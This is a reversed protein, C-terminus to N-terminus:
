KKRSDTAEELHYLDTRRLKWYPQRSRITEVQHLDLECILLGPKEELQAIIQGDPNVILSHGYSQYTAYSAAAPNSAALFLENEMARTQMLPQWHKAGVRANFGCPCALLLCDSGLLRALECFRTDYCILIGIKGWPSDFSGLHDGPTFVDSERYHSHTTHVELLHLKDVHTVIQGQDNFVFCRNYIHGNEATPLTGGIIWLKYRAALHAMHDALQTSEDVHALIRENIFPTNWLEPLLVMQANQSSAQKILTDLGLLNDAPDDHVEPQLIALRLTNQTM